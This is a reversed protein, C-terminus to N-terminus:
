SVTEIAEEDFAVCGGGIEVGRHNITEGAPGSLTVGWNIGATCRWLMADTIDPKAGPVPGVHGAILWAIGAATSLMRAASLLRQSAHSGFGLPDLAPAASVMLHPRLEIDKLRQVLAMGLDPAHDFDRENIPVVQMREGAAAKKHRWAIQHDRLTNERGRGDVLVAVRRGSRAARFALEEAVLAQCNAPAGYLVTVTGPKILELIM